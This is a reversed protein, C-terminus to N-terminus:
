DQVDAKLYYDGNQGDMDVFEGMYTRNAIICMKAEYDEWSPCKYAIYDEKAWISHAYYHYSSVHSCSGSKDLKECNPQKKGGNPYFDIDGISKDLGNQGANTHIVDVFIADTEDLRDESSSKEYMPKAPDLGTIRPLAPLNKGVFGAIHAGMSHGIVHVKDYAITMNYTIKTLVHAIDRAIYKVRAKAVAYTIDTSYQKWDVCIVNYEGVKFYSKVNYSCVGDKEQTTGLWGHIIVKIPNNENYTTSEIMHQESRNLLQGDTNDRTYLWYFVHKSTQYLKYEERHFDNDYYNGRGANFENSEYVSDSGSSIDQTFVFITLMCFLITTAIPYKLIASM